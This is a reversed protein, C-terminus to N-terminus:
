SARGEVEVEVGMELEVEVEGEMRSALACSKWSTKEAGVAIV